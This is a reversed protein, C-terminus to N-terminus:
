LCPVLGSNDKSRSKSSRSVPRPSHGPRSRTAPELPQFQSGELKLYQRFFETLQDLQEPSLDDLAKIAALTKSHDAVAMLRDNRIWEEGEEKQKAQIGGILRVKVVAGLSAPFDLLVLVDVPDGDEGLTSPIFGFDLPFTM